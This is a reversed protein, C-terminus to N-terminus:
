GLRYEESGDNSLPLLEAIDNVLERVAVGSMEGGEEDSDGSRDSM